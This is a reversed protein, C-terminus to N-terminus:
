YDDFGRYGPIVNLERRLALCEEEWQEVRTRLEGVQPPTPGSTQLLNVLEKPDSRLDYAEDGYDPDHIFSADRTRGGQVLGQRRSAKAIGSPMTTTLAGKYGGVQSFVADRLPQRAGDKVWPLLDHGQAYDPVDAGALGLITPFLDVQDVFGSVKQGRPWQVDEPPAVILPVHLLCEYLQEGKTFMGKEGNYDGHDSGIIMWTNELLGRRGLEDYLRRMQSDVYGIMGYYAAIMKRVDEDTAADSDMQKRAVAQWAPRGDGGREPAVVDDPDVLKDFPPSAFFPPHPELYPVHLFYPEDAVEIGDLIDIARKTLQAGHGKEPPYELSGSSWGNSRSGHSYWEAMAKGVGGSEHYTVQENWGRTLSREDEYHGVAATYYGRAQLLEPLQPLNYPARNQHCTVQHVLPHVGTMVSARSPTCIPSTVYTDLFSVGRAAIENMFPSPVLDNGNQSAASAKQQDSMLYLINPRNKDHRRTM